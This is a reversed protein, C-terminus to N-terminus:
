AWLWFRESAVTWRVLGTGAEQVALAPQDKSGWRWQLGTRIGWTRERKSATEGKELLWFSSQKPASHSFHRVWQKLGMPDSM